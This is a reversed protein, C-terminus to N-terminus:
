PVGQMMDSAGFTLATKVVALILDREIEFEFRAHFPNKGGVTYAFHVPASTEGPLQSLVSEVPVGTPQEEDLALAVGRPTFFGLVRASRYDARRFYQARNARGDYEVFHKATDLALKQDESGVIWTATGDTTLYVHTTTEVAPDEDTALPYDPNAADRVVVYMSGKPLPSGRLPKENLTLHTKNPRSSKKPDEGSKMADIKVAARLSSTWLDLPEELGICWWGHSARDGQKTPPAGTAFRLSGGTLLTRRLIPMAQDVLADPQERRLDAEMAQWVPQSARALLTGEVGASTLAFVTSDPLKEFSPPMPSAPTGVLLANLLGDRQSVEADIALRMGGAGITLELGTAGMSDLWDAAAQKGLVESHSEVQKLEAEELATKASKEILGRTAELRLDASFRRLASKKMYAGLRRVTQPDKACVLRERNDATAHQLCTPRDDGGGHVDPLRRSVEFAEELLQPSYGPRLGFSVALLTDDDVVGLAAAQVPAQLDVLKSGGPVPLLDLLADHELVEALPGDAYLEAAHRLLDSPSNVYLVLDVGEPVPVDAVVLPEAQAPTTPVGLPAKPAPAPTPSGCCLVSLTLLGLLGANSWGMRGAYGM